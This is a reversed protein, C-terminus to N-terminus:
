IYTASGSPDDYCNHPTNKHPGRSCDSGDFSNENENYALTLLVTKDGFCKDIVAVPLPATPYQM